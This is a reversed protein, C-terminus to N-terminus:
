VLRTGRSVADLAAALVSRDLPKPVCGAFLGAKAGLDQEATLAFIPVAATAGNERLREAVEEAGLRPLVRDVVVAVPLLRVAAEVADVGDAVEHTGYGLGEAVRRVERRTREDGAAVLVLPARTQAAVGFLPLALGFVSGKGPSSEVVWLRGGHARAIRESIYLGLGSGEIEATRRDRV